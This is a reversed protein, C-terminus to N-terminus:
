PKPPIEVSTKMTTAGFFGMSKRQTYTNTLTPERGHYILVLASLPEFM